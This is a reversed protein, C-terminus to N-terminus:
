RIKEMSVVAIMAFDGLLSTGVVIKKGDELSIDSSIRNMSSSIIFQSNLVGADKEFSQANFYCILPAKGGDPVKIEGFLTNNGQGRSRIMYTGGMRYEKYSLTKSLASVVDSLNSPVAEGPFFKTSAWIIDVRLQLDVTEVAVVPVDLIKLANIIAQINEPHDKVTITKIEQMENAEMNAFAHHSGLGKIIKLIENPDRHKIIFVNSELVGMNANANRPPQEQQAAQRTTPQAQQQASQASTNRNAAAQGLLMPATACAALLTLTLKTLNNM